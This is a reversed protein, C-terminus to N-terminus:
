SRDARGNSRHAPVILHISGVSLCPQRHGLQPRVMWQATDFARPGTGCGPCTPVRSNVRGEVPPGVGQGLMRYLAGMRGTQRGRALGVHRRAWRGAVCVDDDRVPRGSVPARARVCWAVGWCSTGPHPVLVSDCRSFIGPKDGRTSRPDSGLAALFAMQSQNRVGARIFLKNTKQGSNPDPTKLRKQFRVSEAVEPKVSACRPM